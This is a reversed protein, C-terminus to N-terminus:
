ILREMMDMRATSSEEIEDGRTRVMEPLVRLLELFSPICEPHSNMEDRLWNVIGGDGWDKAPVHVALAAVALSINLLDRLPRFAESPLEEFDRQVKSRLTQSCFILTEQNSSADHLLNDSVWIKANGHQKPWLRSADVVQPCPLDLGLRMEPGIADDCRQGIFPPCQSRQSNSTCTNNPRAPSVVTGSSTFFVAAWVEIVAPSSLGLKTISFALGKGSLRGMPLPSRNSSRRCCTLPATSITSCLGRFRGLFLQFSM